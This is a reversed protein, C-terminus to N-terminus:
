KFTSLLAIILSNFNNFSSPKTSLIPLLIMNNYSYIICNPVDGWKCWRNLLYVGINLYTAFITWLLYPIQLYASLKNKRYFVIIMYIIAIILLIIWICSFLRWKFVFFLIPWLLNIILQLYYAKNVRYDVLKKTELIGYSIGMLIYLISWVIGFLFGPPSLPPKQLTNYDMFKSVIIGVIGGLILPILISKIWIKKNNM